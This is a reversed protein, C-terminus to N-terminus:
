LYKRLVQKKVLYNFFKPFYIMLLVKIVYATFNSRFKNLFYKDVEYLGFYQSYKEAYRDICMNVKSKKALLKKTRSAKIIRYEFLPKEIYYFKYGHFAANLWLDWDEIGIRSFFLDYGGIKDIMSKKFMACNEIYNDLMLRQMNYPGAKRIGTEEGFLYYDTYVISIEPQSNFIALAEDIFAPGLKNDADVPLIYKGRANAIANNKAACVGQNEQFIINYKGTHALAALRENTYADTSGDNVIIIEYINENEIKEISSITEDIYKGHNYCPLIISVLPSKETHLM